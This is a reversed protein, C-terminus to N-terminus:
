WPAFDVRNLDMTGVNINCQNLDMTGVYVLDSQHGGFRCLGGSYMTGVDTYVLDSEM